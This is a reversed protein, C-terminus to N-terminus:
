PAADPPLPIIAAHSSATAAVAMGSAKAQGRSRCSRRVASSVEPLVVQPRGATAYRLFLALMALALGLVSAEAAMMALEPYIATLVALIAAAALLVPPRRAAPVYILLLGALLALGSAVFVITSRGATVIECPAIRGLCSFLYVNMGAPAPGSGGRRLGVWTELDAQALVPQRGFYIQNWGWAFEGTWACPSTVLHEEPPLFLQWYAHRTWTDDGLSPFEFKM